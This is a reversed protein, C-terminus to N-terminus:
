YDDAGFYNEDLSKEFELREIATQLQPIREQALRKSEEFAAKTEEKMSRIGCTTSTQELVASERLCQTAQEEAILENRLATKLMDLVYEM